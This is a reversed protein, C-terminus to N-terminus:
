LTLPKCCPSPHTPFLMYPTAHPFPHAPNALNAHPSQCLLIAMCPHGCPSQCSPIALCPYSCSTHLAPTAVRAGQTSEWMWGLWFFMTNLGAPMIHDLAMYTSFATILM